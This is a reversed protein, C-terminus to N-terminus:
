FLRPQPPADPAPAAKPREHWDGASRMGGAGRITRRESRSRVLKTLRSREATPLYAGRAYLEEYRPVLDPRYQRLWDFVIERVEGRLHLGVSAVSRAGAEGLLGLLEEV